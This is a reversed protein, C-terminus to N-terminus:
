IAFEPLPTEADGFRDAPVGMRDLLAMHLRCLRRNEQGTYDIVRGGKITGGGGGALLVPLQRSDHANGDMLSSLLLVMSNDLLSSGGEDTAAMKQLAKAWLDVNCENIRQYMDLKEKSGSHHSIEHMGGRVDGLFGYNMSSLDNNMMYSAVRTKDMQFALVILDFMLEMHLKPDTPIGDDPRPITPKTVTSHWGAGDTDALSREEARQMRQELERVSTLYEDLKNKDYQSVQGRLSQADALVADLVSRDRKRVAGDSFLRDFALRPYIEKPSPTTPSSWSIHASYLSTYGLETVYRPSETGLVLSGIETDRGAVQAAMQDITTGVEVDTTTRKVGLGSLVNMKPYHGGPGDMTSENWLGKIVNVHQKLPELPRLSKALQMGSDTATAGWHHPNVGNGMFVCALRRPPTAASGAASAAFSRVSEMWPLAMCVGMGRLFRRRSNHNRAFNM